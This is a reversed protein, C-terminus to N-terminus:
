ESSVLLSALTPNSYVFSARISGEMLRAIGIKFGRRRGAVGLAGIAPVHWAGAAM